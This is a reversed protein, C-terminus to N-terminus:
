IKKPPLAIKTDKEMPYSVIAGNKLAETYRYNQACNFDIEENIEKARLSYFKNIGYYSVTAVVTSLFIFGILNTFKQM